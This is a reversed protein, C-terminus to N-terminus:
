QTMSTEPYLISKVFVQAETELKKVEESEGGLRRWEDRIKQNLEALKKRNTAIQDEALKILGMDKEFQKEQEKMKRKRAEPFANEKKPAKQATSPAKEAERKKKPSAPIEPESDEGFLDEDSVESIEDEKKKFFLNFLAPEEYRLFERAMLDFEPRERLITAALNLEADRMRHYVSATKLHELLQAHKKPVKDVLAPKKFTPEPSTPIRQLPNKKIEERDM